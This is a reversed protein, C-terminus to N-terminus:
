LDVERRRLVTILPLALLAVVMFLVMSIASAYGFVGIGFNQWVAINLVKTSAGPGGQTMSLALEFTQLSGILALALNFTFAPALLPVKVRRVVQWTSAGDVRAAQILERPIANLGAIYVLMYIGFSKWVQVLAVVFVTWTTSGLWEVRVDGGVILGLAQNLSGDAQFIAKFLYGAALPSILVPVFLATRFFSNIRSAKELLLALGLAAVNAVVTFCVAFKLTVEVTSTLTGSSVLDRFNDLGIFEREDRYSSWNTFSLVFGVLIPLAYFVSVAVVAPWAFALPVSRVVRPERGKRRVPPRKRLPPERVTVAPQTIQSM